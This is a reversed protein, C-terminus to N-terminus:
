KCVHKASEIMARYRHLWRVYVEVRGCDPCVYANLPVRDGLMGGEGPSWYVGEGITTFDLPSDTKVLFGCRMPSGCCLCLREPEEEAEVREPAAPPM